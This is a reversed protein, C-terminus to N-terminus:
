GMVGVPLAEGIRSESGSDVICAMGEKDVRIAVWENTTPDMWLQIIHNDSRGSFLLMGGAKKMETAAKVHPVCVGKSYAPFAFFVALAAIFMKM